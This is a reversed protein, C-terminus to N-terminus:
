LGDHVFQRIIFSMGLLQRGLLRLRLVVLLVTGDFYIQLLYHSVGGSCCSTSKVIVISVGVLLLRGDLVISVYCILQESSVVRVVLLAEILILIILLNQNLALLPRKLVCITM